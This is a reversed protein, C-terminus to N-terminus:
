HTSPDPGFTLGHEEAANRLSDCVVGPEARALRADPDLETIRNLYRSVDLVIAVNCTQGALSTGAGRMLIPANFEDAIAVTTEVDKATRPAVVGIPVQRYNSADTAYLARNGADFYVDGELGAKLKQVFQDLEQASSLRDPEATSTM